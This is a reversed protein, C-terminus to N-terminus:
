MQAKRDKWINVYAKHWVFSCKNLVTNSMLNWLEMPAKFDVSSPLVQYIEHTQHAYYICSNVLGPWNECTEPM